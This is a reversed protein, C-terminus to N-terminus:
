GNHANAMRRRRMEALDKIMEEESKWGKDDGIIDQIEEMLTLNKEATIMATMKDVLRDMRIEKISKNEDVKKHNAWFTKIEQILNDFDEKTMKPKVTIEVPQDDPYNPLDIIGKLAGANMKVTVPEM